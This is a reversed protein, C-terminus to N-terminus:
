RAGLIPMFVKFDNKPIFSMYVAQPTDEAPCSLTVNQNYWHPNLNCATCAGVQRCLPLSYGEEPNFVANIFDTYYPVGASDMVTASCGAGYRSEDLDFGETMLRDIEEPDTTAIVRVCTLPPAEPAAWGTVPSIIVMLALVALIWRKM